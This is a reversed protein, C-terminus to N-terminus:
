CGLQIPLKRTIGLLAHTMSGQTIITKNDQLLDLGVLDLFPLLSLCCSGSLRQGDVIRSRRRLGGYAALAFRPRIGTTFGTSLLSRFRLCGSRAAKIM